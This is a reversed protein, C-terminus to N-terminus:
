RERQALPYQRGLDISAAAGEPTKSPTPCPTPTAGASSCRKGAKTGRGKRKSRFSEDGDQPTVDRARQARPQCADPAANRPPSRQGNSGCRREFRERLCYRESATSPMKHKDGGHIYAGVEPHWPSAVAISRHQYAESCMVKPGSLHPHCRDARAGGRETRKPQM